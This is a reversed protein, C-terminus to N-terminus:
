LVFVAASVVTTYDEVEAVKHVSLKKSPKTNFASEVMYSAIREAHELSGEYWEGSHEAIYGNKSDDEPKAAAISAFIKKGRENSTYKAMVVFVIQGPKLEALGEEKEVFECNPPLISSVPVLNFKEIGADRLALEFSVLADEHKGAGSVFFVKKPILNANDM